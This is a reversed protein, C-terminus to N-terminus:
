PEKSVWHPSVLALLEAGSDGEDTFRMQLTVAVMRQSRNSFFRMLQKAVKSDRKAFAYSRPQDKDAVQFAFSQFVRQDSYQYNYYNAPTILVRLTVPEEQRLNILKSLQHSNYGVSAEWDVLYSSGEPRLIFDHVVGVHDDASAVVYEPPVESHCHRAKSSRIRIYGFNQENPMLRSNYYEAMLSAVREGQWVYSLKSKITPAKWFNSIVTKADDFENIVHDIERALAAVESSDEDEGTRNRENVALLVVSILVITFVIASISRAIQKAWAMERGGSQGTNPRAEEFAIRNKRSELPEDDPTVGPEAQSLSSLKAKRVDAWDSRITTVGSRRKRSEANRVRPGRVTRGEQTAGLQEYPGPQDTQQRPLPEGNGLSRSAFPDDSEPEDLKPLEKLDPADSQDGGCENILSQLNGIDRKLEEIEALSPDPQDEPPFSKEM